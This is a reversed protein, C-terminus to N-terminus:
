DDGIEALFLFAAKCAGQLLVSCYVDLVWTQGIAIDIKVLLSDFDEPPRTNIMSPLVCQVDHLWREADSSNHVADEFVSVPM